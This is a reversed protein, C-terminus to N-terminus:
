VKPIDLEIDWKKAHYRVKIEPFKNVTYRPKMKGEIEILKCYRIRHVYKICIKVLSHFYDWIANRDEQIIIHEGKDDKSTFLMKFASINGEKVPLHAFIAAAHVNFFNERREEIEDWCKHSHLIFTEIMEIKNYKKLYAKALIILAPNVDKIGEDWCISTLEHILDSLELVNRIFREEEPPGSAM